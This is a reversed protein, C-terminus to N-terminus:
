PTGRVAEAPCAGVPHAGTRGLLVRAAISPRMLRSPAKLMGFVDMFARAVAPDRHAARLVRGAYATTIRWRATRRGEVGPVLLDNDTVFTWPTDVLPRSLRLFLRGSHVPGHRALISALALCEHAAMSMGRGYMPNTSCLADGLVVLREPFRALRDYRHRVNAPYTGTVAEGLPETTSVIAHVDGSWLSHAFARFGALDAPPQEGLYSGLTVLWREGEVALATGSHRETRRPAIVVGLSGGPGSFQRRFMRTTYRVDIHLRQEPPRAYGLDELWRPLRSGRGTADVVLDSPLTTEGKPASVPQLRVGRVQRRDLSPVLGLIRHGSRLTVNDLALVRDRVVREMLPRTAGVFLVDSGVLDLRLRAGGLNMRHHSGDDLLHAGAARLADTVGPLLREMARMGGPLLVHLHSGQPVGRRTADPRDRGPWPDREIVTVRQAVPAVAAAALLGAMSAGLVVANEIAPSATTRPSPSQM